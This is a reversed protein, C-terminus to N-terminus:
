DHDFANTDGSEPSMPIASHPIGPRGLRLAKNFDRNVEKMTNGDSASVLGAEAKKAQRKALLYFLSNEKPTINHRSKKKM